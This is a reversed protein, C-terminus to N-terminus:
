FEPLLKVIHYQSNMVLRLHAFYIMINWVGTGTIEKSLLLNLLFNITRANVFCVIYQINNGRIDEFTFRFRHFQKKFFRNCLAAEM